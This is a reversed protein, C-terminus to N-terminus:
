LNQTPLPIGGIGFGSTNSPQRQLLLRDKSESTSRGAPAGPPPGAMKLSNRRSLSLVGIGDGSGIV